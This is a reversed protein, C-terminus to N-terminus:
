CDVNNELTRAKPFLINNELHIHQRLDADFEALKTYALRFTNCADEPVTFDKSLKRIQELSEGASIHEYEMAQIPQEIHGCHFGEIKTSGESASILQKIFPFLIREEKVMHAELESKLGNFLHTITALEPHNNGHAQTTKNMLASIVPMETKLYNHHNILIYDILFRVDWQGFRNMLGSVMPQAQAIEALLATEDLGNEACAQALTKKGGCCFDIGHKNLTESRRFDAAIIEGITMEPNIMVEINM